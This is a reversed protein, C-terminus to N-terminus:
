QAVNVLAPRILAGQLMYGKQLVQTIDGSQHAPDTVHSLAEHLEPNFQGQANVEEVSIERLFHQFTQYIMHMGEAVAPPTNAHEFTALAREIGDIVPLLKRVFDTQTANIQAVRDTAVRKKYNEFDASAYFFKNKWEKLHTHCADLEASLTAVEQQDSPAHNENGSCCTESACTDKYEQM